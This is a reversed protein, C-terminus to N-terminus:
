VYCKRDPKVQFGDQCQCLGKESKELGRFPKCELHPWCRPGDDTLSCEGGFLALCTSSTSNFDQLEPCECIQRHSCILGSQSDCSFVGWFTCNQGYMLFCNRESEVYGDSCRCQSLGYETKCESGVDMCTSSEDCPSGLKSYCKEEGNVFQQHFSGFKCQCYSNICYLGPLCQLNTAPSFFDSTCGAKGGGDGYLHPNELCSKDAKEYHKYAVCQYNTDEMQVCYAGPECGGRGDDNDSCTGEGHSGARIYCKKTQNNWNKLCICVKDPGCSLVGKCQNDNECTEGLFRRQECLEHNTQFYGPKCTCKPRTLRENKECSAGTTCEENRDVECDGGALIMCKGFNENYIYFLDPSCRCDCVGSRNCFFGKAGDCDDTYNCAEGYLRNQTTSPSVGWVGGVLIAFVLVAVFLVM